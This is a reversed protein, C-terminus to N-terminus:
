NASLFNIKERIAGYEYFFLIKFHRLRMVM